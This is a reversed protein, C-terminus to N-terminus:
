PVSHGVLDKALAANQDERRRGFWNKMAPKLTLKSSLMVGSWSEVRMVHESGSISHCSGGSPEKCSKLVKTALSAESLCWTKNQMQWTVLPKHAIERALIAYCSGKEQPFPREPCPFSSTKWSISLQAMETWHLDTNHGRVARWGKEKDGRLFSVYSPQPRKCTHRWHKERRWSFYSITKMCKHWVSNKRTTKLSKSKSLIM